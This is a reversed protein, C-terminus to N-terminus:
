RWYGGDRRPCPLMIGTDIWKLGGLRNVRLWGSAHLGPRANPAPTV